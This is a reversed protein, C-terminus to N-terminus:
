AGQTHSKKKEANEAMKNFFAIVRERERRAKQEKEEETEPTVRFPEELYGKPKQGRKPDRHINHAVASLAHFVYAGMLWAEDSVQQRRLQWARAYWAALAPEGRWYQEPTMGMQLFYPFEAELFRTYDGM